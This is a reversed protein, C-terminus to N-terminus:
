APRVTQARIWEAGAQPSADDPIPGQARTQATLLEGAVRRAQGERGGAGAGCTERRSSM